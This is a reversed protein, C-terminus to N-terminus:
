QEAQDSSQDTRDQKPQRETGQEREGIKVLLKRAARRARRNEGNAWSSLVFDTERPTDKRGWLEAIAQDRLSFQASLKAVAVHRDPDNSVETDWVIGLTSDAKAHEMKVRATTQRYEDLAERRAAIIQGRRKSWLSWQETIFPIVTAALLAVLAGTLFDM